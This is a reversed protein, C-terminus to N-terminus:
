AISDLPMLHYGENRTLWSLYARRGDSVLLPHDSYDETSAIARPSSWTAGEDSSGMVNVTTRTGDFEKWAVWVKRGIALVYPRTPHRAPDGLTTPESFTTGGDTSRAYFSGKRASGQTFWVAHYTGDPSIALSPGHHPCADIVWHDLSVRHLPGPTSPGTFTVIAHDRESGAFINRFLVVPDNGHMALALRCCECSHDQVIAAPDFHAGGDNSWAFAVSAGDFTRGAQTAAVVNRKDLWLALVRDNSGLALTLFRQSATNRTVPHPPAFTRGGDRSTAIFIEGNYNRDKFISYGVVIGGHRDVLIQPRADPGNDMTQPKRTVLVAPSFSHSLDSSHAVAVQGAATWTLWLTGDPAFYPTAATACALSPENCFGTPTMPMQMKSPAASAGAGSLAWGTLAAGLAAFLGVQRSLRSAPRTTM